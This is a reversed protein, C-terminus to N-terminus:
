RQMFIGRMDVAQLLQQTSQPIWPGRNGPVAPLSFPHDLFPPYLSSSQQTSHLEVQSSWCTVCYHEDVVPSFVVPKEGEKKEVAKGKKM